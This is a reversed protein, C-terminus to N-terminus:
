YIGIMVIGVVLRVDRLWRFKEVKGKYIILYLLEVLFFIIIRYFFVICLVVSFIFGKKMCDFVVYKM